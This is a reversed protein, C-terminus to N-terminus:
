QLNVGSLLSGRPRIIVKFTVDETMEVEADLEVGPFKEEAEAVVSRVLPKLDFEKSVLIGADPTDNLQQM